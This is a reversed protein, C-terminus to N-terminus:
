AFQQSKKLLLADSLAKLCSWVSEESMRILISSKKLAPRYAPFCWSHLRLRRKGEWPLQILQVSNETSTIREPQLPLAPVGKPASPPLSPSVSTQIRLVIKPSCLVHIYFRIKFVADEKCGDLSFSGSLVSPNCHLWHLNLVKLAPGPFWRELGKLLM